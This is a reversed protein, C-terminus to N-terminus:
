VENVLIDYSRKCIRSNVAATVAQDEEDFAMVVVVRGYNKLLLAQEKYKKRGVKLSIFNVIIKGPVM